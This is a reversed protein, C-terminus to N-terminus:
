DPPDGNCTLVFAEVYAAIFHWFQDVVVVVRCPFICNEIEIVYRVVYDLKFQIFKLPWLPVELIAYSLWNNNTM